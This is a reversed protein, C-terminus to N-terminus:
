KREDEKSKPKHMIVPRQMANYGIYAAGAVVISVLIIAGWPTKGDQGLPFHTQEILM